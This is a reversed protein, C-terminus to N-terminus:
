LGTGGHGANKCPIQFDFELGGAQLAFVKDVSGDARGWVLVTQTGLKSAAM